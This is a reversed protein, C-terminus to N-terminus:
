REVQNRNRRMRRTGQTGKHGNPTENRERTIEIAPELLVLNNRAKRKDLAVAARGDATFALGEPKGDLDSMRWSALVTAQGGGSPLNDLRAISESQDSLMYLRDDPGVEMDSFDDCVKRLAKDPRWVALAVFKHKGEKIPWRAGSALPSSRGCGRSRAGAPGFEILASPDKEKAVLLHGGRLFVAGEGRSGDPDNWSDALDDRTEIALEISAVVRMADLDVLEARAPSEQLLLVRGSGDVCVAEVQPNKKPISSGKLRSVNVIQWELEGNKTRPIPAWALKAARDGMAILSMRRGAGRQLCIGSVERLPVELERVVKLSVNKM